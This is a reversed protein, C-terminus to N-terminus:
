APRDPPPVFAALQTRNVVGVKAYVNSLHTKVTETGMLLEAAIAANSRGARALDAVRRETPTLALWGFTPRGRQGRSRRAFALADDLSLGRGEHFAADFSERGMASRTAARDAVHQSRHPELRLGLGAAERQQEAAGALRASEPWSGNAAAIGALLELGLIMEILMGQEVAISLARHVENEASALDGEARAVLAGVMHSEAVLQRNANPGLFPSADDLRRRADTVDGLALTAQAAVFPIFRVQTSMMPPVSRMTKDGFERVEEFEGRVHLARVILGRQLIAWQHFDFRELRALQERRVELSPGSEGRQSATALEYESQLTQQMPTVVPGPRVSALALAIAEGAGALDGSLLCARTRDSAWPKRMTGNGLRDLVEECRKLGERAAVLNGSRLHPNVANLIAAAEGYLDGSAEADEIARENIATGAAPDSFSVIASVIARCRGVTSRDGFRAAIGIAEQAHAMAPGGRGSLGVLKAHTSLILTAAVPELSM